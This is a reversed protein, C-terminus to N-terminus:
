LAHGDVIINSLILAPDLVTYVIDDMTLQIFHKQYLTTTKALTHQLIDFNYAHGKDLNQSIAILDRISPDHMLEETM